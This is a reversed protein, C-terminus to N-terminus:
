DGDPRRHRRWQPHDAAWKPFIFLGEAEVCTNGDADLTRGKAVTKTGDTSELWAEVTVPGLPTARRYHLTLRGTMGPGGFVSAAEGLAQDLVLASVGGHVHGPPGEWAPGLHTRFRLVQGDVERCAPSVVSLPNRLGVVTNGHNRVGGGSTLTVGLSGQEARAALRADLAAVEATVAQVEDLDVETLMSSDILAAVARALAGHAADREAEDPVDDPLDDQLDHPGASM